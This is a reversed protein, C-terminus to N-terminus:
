RNSWRNESNPVNPRGASVWEASDNGAERIEAVRFRRNNMMVSVAATVAAMTEDDLYEPNAGAPQGADPVVAPKGRAAHRDQIRVTWAVTKGLGEMFLAMAGLVIFVVTFATISIFLAGSMGTLESM